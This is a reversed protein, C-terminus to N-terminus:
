IEKQNRLRIFLYWIIAAVLGVVDIIKWFYLWEMGPQFFSGFHVQMFDSIGFTILILSSFLALKKYSRNVVFSVFLPLLGLIIWFCGELFNFQESSLNELM